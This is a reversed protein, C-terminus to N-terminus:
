PVPSLVDCSSACIPSSSQVIQFRTILPSGFFHRPLFQTRILVMLGIRLALDCLPRQRCSYLIGCERASGKAILYCRCCCCRSLQFFVCHEVNLSNLSYLAFFILMDVALVVIVGGDGMNVNQRKGGEEVEPRLNRGQWIRNTCIFRMAQPWMMLKEDARRGRRPAASLIRRDRERRAVCRHLWLNLQSARGSGVRCRESPAGPIRIIRPGLRLCCKGRSSWGSRCEGRPWRWTRRTQESKRPPERFM